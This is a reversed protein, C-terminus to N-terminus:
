GGLSRRIPGRSQMDQQVLRYGNKGGEEAAQRLAQILQQDGNYNRLDFQQNITINQPAANSDGQLSSAIADFKKTHERDLVTEGSQLIAPIEDSALGGFHFRPIVKGGEHYSGLSFSGSSILDTNLISGGSGAGFLGSFGSALMGALPATINQQITLRMLDALISDVMDGFQMKGTMAFKVLSDEMSDFASSITGAVRDEFTEEYYNALKDLSNQISSVWDDQAVEMQLLADGYLNLSEVLGDLPDNLLDLNLYMEAMADDSSLLSAELEKTVKQLAKLEAADVVSNYERQLDYLDERTPGYVDAAKIDGMPLGTATKEVASIVPQYTNHKLASDLESKVSILNKYEAVVDDLYEIERRIEQVRKPNSGGMALESQLKELEAKARAIVKEEASRSVLDTSDTSLWDFFTMGGFQMEKFSKFSNGLKDLAVTLGNIASTAMDLAGAEGFTRVLQDWEDSLNSLSGGLTEMQRAMGGAFEVEGIRRLYTEIDEASNKIETTVGRFTFKVTDGQYRAKIGFEKLREFEGTSADAVAEIMQNLTKGMASATNGYARLAETSADLGLAEMRIFADTVEALQYPTTAAFAQIEDFREKALTASGTVTVLSAELRDFEANVNAFESALRGIALGAIVGGFGKMLTNVGGISVGFKNFSETGTKGMGEINASAKKVDNLLQAFAKDTQNNATFIAEVTNAM